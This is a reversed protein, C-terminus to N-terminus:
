EKHHLFLLCWLRMILVLFLMADMVTPQSIQTNKLLNRCYYVSYLVVNLNRIDWICVIDDKGRTTFLQGSKHSQIHIIQDSHTTFNSSIARSFRSIM